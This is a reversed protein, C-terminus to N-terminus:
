LSEVKRVVDQLLAAEGCDSKSGAALGTLRKGAKRLIHEYYCDPLIGCCGVVADM